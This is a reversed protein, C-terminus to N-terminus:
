TFYVWIKWNSGLIDICHKFDQEFWHKLPNWPFIFNHSFSFWVVQNHFSRVCRSIHVFFSVSNKEKNSIFNSFMELKQFFLIKIYKHSLNQSCGWMWTLFFIIMDFKSFKQQNWIEYSLCGWKGILGKKQWWKKMHGVNALLYKWLQLVSSSFSVGIAASFGPFGGFITRSGVSGSESTSVLKECM